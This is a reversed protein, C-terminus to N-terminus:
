RIETFERDLMVGVEIEKQADWSTWVGEEAEDTRGGWVQISTTGDDLTEVCPSARMNSASSLFHVIDDFDTKNTFTVPTGSLKKCLHISELFSVQQPVLFYGLDRNACM